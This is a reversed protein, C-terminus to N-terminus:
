NEQNLSQVHISSSLGFNNTLRGEVNIGSEDNPNVACKIM